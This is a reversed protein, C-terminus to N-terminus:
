TGMTHSPSCSKLWPPAPPQLCQVEQGPGLEAREVREVREVLGQVPEALEAREAREVRKFSATISLWHCSIHRLLTMARRGTQATLSLPL